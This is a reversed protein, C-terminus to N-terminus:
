INELDKLSIYTTSPRYPCNGSIRTGKEGAGSFWCVTTFLVELFVYLGEILAGYVAFCFGGEPNKDM